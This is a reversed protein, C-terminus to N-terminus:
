PRVLVVLREVRDGSWCRRAEADHRIREPSKGPYLSAIVAVGKRRNSRLSGRNGRTWERKWRVDGFARDAPYVIQVPLHEEEPNTMVGIGREMQRLEEGANGVPHRPMARHESVSLASPDIVPLVVMTALAESQRVLPQALPAKLGFPPYPVRMGPERASPIDDCNSQFVQSAVREEKEM